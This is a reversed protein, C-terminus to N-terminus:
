HEYEISLLFTSQCSLRLFPCWFVMSLLIHAEYWLTILQQFLLSGWSQITYGWIHRFNCWISYSWSSCAQIRWDYFWYGGFCSRFHMATLNCQWYLIHHSEHFFIIEGSQNMVKSQKAVRTSTSGLVRWSDSAYVADLSCYSRGLGVLAVRLCLCFCSKDGNM